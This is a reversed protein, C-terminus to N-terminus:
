INTVEAKSPLIGFETQKELHFMHDISECLSDMNHHGTVTIEKVV